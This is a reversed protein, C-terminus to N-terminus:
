YNSIMNTIVSYVERLLGLLRARFVACDKKPKEFGRGLRADSNLEPLSLLNQLLIYFSVHLQKEYDLKEKEHKDHGHQCYWVATGISLCAVGDKFM